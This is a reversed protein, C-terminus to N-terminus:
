LPSPAINFTGAPVNVTNRGCSAWMGQMVASPLGSGTRLATTFTLIFPHGSRIGSFVDRNKFPEVRHALAGPHIDATDTARPQVVKDPFHEIVRDVLRHVPVRRLDAHCQVLVALGDGDIIVPATDRDIDM